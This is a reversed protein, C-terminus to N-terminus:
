QQDGTGGKQRSLVADDIRIYVTIM